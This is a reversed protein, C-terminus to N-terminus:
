LDDACIDRVKITGERSRKHDASLQNEVLNAITNVVPDFFRKM